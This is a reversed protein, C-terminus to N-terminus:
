EDETWKPPRRECDYCHTKWTKPRDLAVLRGKSVEENYEKLGNGVAFFSLKYCTVAPDHLCQQGKM